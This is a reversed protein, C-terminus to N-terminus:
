EHTYQKTWGKDGEPHDLTHDFYGHRHSDEYVALGGSDKNTDYLPAWFIAMLQYNPRKKTRNSCICMRMM